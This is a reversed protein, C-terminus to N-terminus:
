SRPKKVPRRWSSLTLQRSRSLTLQDAPADKTIVSGAGIFAGDEVRVPAVLTSNSGVFAGAGIDTHHKNAGDYNCTITGAGINAGAGVRADGIYTLHNVKAGAEITAKKVEVFNGVKAGDDLRTEPRLRAFPGVQCHQGVAADEIVSNPLVKTGNGLTANRIVCNPGIRVREGLQVNDLVVNIDIESDQGVTVRRRLDVRAPDALTVGALMLEEARQQQCRRELVALQVRNNVGLTEDIDPPQVAQVPVGDAVALAVLDTLYYEGQANDNRLRPLWDHLRKGPVAVFGTNIENIAQQAATADKQEVIGVIAEAEDRQIRGYGTPDALSATLLTLAQQQEPALLPQLTEPRILPVDGYLVLVREEAQIHPLAQMVAHGTGLQETQQVFQLDAEIDALAAQVTDAGHGVVVTIRQGLASATRVVHRILPEGALPHCVKPLESKMRSGQGAALIVIHTPASPTATM